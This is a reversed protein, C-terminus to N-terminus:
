VTEKDSKTFEAFLRLRQETGGNGWAKTAELQRVQEYALGFLSAKEELTITRFQEPNFYAERMGREFGAEYQLAARDNETMYKPQLYQAARDWIMAPLSPLSCIWRALWVQHKVGSGDLNFDSPRPGYAAVKIAGRQYALRYGEVGWRHGRTIKIPMKM